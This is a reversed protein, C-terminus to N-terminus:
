VDRKGSDEIIAFLWAWLLYSKQPVLLEIM